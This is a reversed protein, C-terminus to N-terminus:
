SQLNELRVDMDKRPSAHIFAALASCKFRMSLRDVARSTNIWADM